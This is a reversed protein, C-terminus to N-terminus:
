AARRASGSRPCPLGTAHWWRGTGRARGSNIRHWTGASEGPGLELDADEGDHGERERRHDDEGDATIGADKRTPVVQLGAERIGPPQLGARDYTQGPDVDAGDAVDGEVPRDHLDDHPDSGVHGVHDGVARDRLDPRHAQEPFARHVDRRGVFARRQGVPRVDARGLRRPLNGVHGFVGRLGERLRGREDLIQPRALARDAPEHGFVLEVHLQVGDHLGGVLHDTRDLLGLAGHPVSSFLWAAAFFRSRARAFRSWTM